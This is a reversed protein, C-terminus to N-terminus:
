YNYYYYYYNYYYYDESSLFVSFRNNFYYNNFTTTFPSLLRVMLPTHSPLLLQGQQLWCDIYYQHPINFICKYIYKERKDITHEKIYIYIYLIFMIYIIYQKYINNEKEKERYRNYTYINRGCSDQISFVRLITHNGSIQYSLM